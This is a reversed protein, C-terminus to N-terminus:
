SKEGDWLSSLLHVRVALFPGDASPEYYGHFSSSALNAQTGIQYKPRCDKRVGRIKRKKATDRLRRPSLPLSAAALSNPPSSRRAKSISPTAASSAPPM